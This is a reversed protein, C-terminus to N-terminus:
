TQLEPFYVVGHPCKSAFKLNTVDSGEHSDVCGRRSIKQKKGSYCWGEPDKFEKTAEEKKYYGRAVSPTKFCIEGVGM